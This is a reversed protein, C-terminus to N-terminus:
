VQSCLSWCVIFDMNPLTYLSHVYCLTGTYAKCDMSSWLLDDLSTLTKLNFYSLLGFCGMTWWCRPRQIKGAYEEPTWLFSIHCKPIHANPDLKCFRGFFLNFSINCVVNKSLLYIVYKVFYLLYRFMIAEHFMDWVLQFWEFVYNELDLLPFVISDRLKLSCVAQDCKTPWSWQMSPVGRLPEPGLRGAMLTELDKRIEM